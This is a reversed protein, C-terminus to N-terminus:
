PSHVQALWGVSCYQPIPRIGRQLLLAADAGALAENCHTHSPMALLSPADAAGQKGGRSKEKQETRNKAQRGRPLAMPVYYHRACTAGHVLPAVPSSRLQSMVGRRPSLFPPMAAYQRNSPVPVSSPDHRPRPNLSHLVQVRLPYHVEIQLAGVQQQAVPLAAGDALNRVETEGLLLPLSVHRPHGALTARQGPNRWLDDLSRLRHRLFHPGGPGGAGGARRSHWTM